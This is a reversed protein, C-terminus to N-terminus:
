CHHHSLPPLQHSNYPHCTNNSLNLKKKLHKTTTTTNITTTTTGRKDVVMVVVSVLVMMMVVVVMVKMVVKIKNGSEGNMTCKDIASSCSNFSSGKCLSMDCGGSGIHFWWWLYRVVVMVVVGGGGSAGGGGVFVSLYVLMVVFLTGLKVVATVLM